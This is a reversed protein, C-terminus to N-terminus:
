IFLNHMVDIKSEPIAEHNDILSERNRIGSHSVDDSQDIFAGILKARTESKIGKDLSECFSNAILFRSAVNLRSHFFSAQQITREYLKFNLGAIVEVIAGGVLPIWAKGKLQSNFVVVVSFLFGLSGIAAFILAWNFSKQAQTLIAEYYRNSIELRTSAVQLVNDPKTESLKEIAENIPLNVKHTFLSDWPKISQSTNVNTDEKDKIDSIFDKIESFNDINLFDLIAVLDESPIKKGRLLNVISEPPVGSLNAIQKM